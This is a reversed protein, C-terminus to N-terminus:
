PRKVYRALADQWTPMPIGAATLKANSLAAYQPRNALLAADKMPVDVIQADPSDVIRALERALASWTTWGTNVCHYLGFPANREILASTAQAVDFVFSPSVTRDCFARVERGAVIGDLLKDVSSRASPGGFLSEVRLVYHRPADAAHWEGLLKTLAYMGGPNPPDEETLERQETGAFVFDTSYHVLTADIEAAARAMTRVALANVSLAQLPDREADDVKTYASCNVIVDPCLSAIADRVARVDTVDLEARTRALVEHHSALHETMVEGLQGAAGLVLVLRRM